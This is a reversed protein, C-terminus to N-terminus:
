KKQAQVPTEKKGPIGDKGAFVKPASILPTKSDVANLDFNEPFPRQATAMTKFVEDSVNQDIFRVSGDAMLAYTGRRAKNDKGTSSLVFPAVSNKEPVGRLTSGGGAMWPTVGVMSDPPVELMLITSALGHGKRVEDLSMGKDYNMVGRKPLNAPDAPDYDAADLGIGAIGVFHTAALEFPLDPRSLYHSGPPFSPDIFQPVLTSAPAWNSPDRWSDNYNIKSYLIEQGLFPLLGAMWSVRQIPAHRFRQASTAPRQFAGPPYYGPLVGRESLGKEPLLKGARALDHRTWAHAAVEMEASLGCGILSAIAHLKGIELQDLKLDLTFEVTKDKQTVTIKSVNPDVKKDKLSSKAATRPQGRRLYLNPRPPPPGKAPDVLLPVDKEPLKIKHGLLRELFHAMEPAIDDDLEAQLNRADNDLPCHLENRLQFSRDDKQVLAVGLARLRPNPEQLLLTVDWIQRPYWVMGGKSEAPAGPLRAAELDTASSFLVKTKGDSGASQMHELITKLAPKITMYTEGRAAAATKSEDGATNAPADAAPAPPTAPTGKDSVPKFRNDENLLAVMPAEDAFILTQPNHFHVYLARKKPKQLALLSRPVGIAFRALQDLWPNFTSVQYHTYKKVLPAPKLDLAKKVAEQNVIEHFHVVTFSWGKPGSHDARILDDIALLSFGLKGRLFDDKLAGPTQFLADALPGAPDFLLRFPVHAVHQTDNPLLNTLEAANAPALPLDVPRPKIPAETPPEKVDNNVKPTTDPKVIAPNVVAPNVVRSGKGGKAVPQNTTGKGRLIFFAAAGLVVVGVVALAIGMAFRSTKAKKKAGEGGTDKKGADAEGGAGAEEEPVVRPVPKKLPPAKAIAKAKPAAEDAASGANAKAEPSKVIFKDKCKPCEIKKGVMSIDKVPVLAECSPCEQKFGTGTAM